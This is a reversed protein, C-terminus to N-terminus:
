RGGLVTRIEVLNSRVRLVHFGMTALHSPMFSSDESGNSIIFPQIRLAARLMDLTGSWLVGVNREAIVQQFDVGAASLIGYSAYLQGYAFWFRDDARM